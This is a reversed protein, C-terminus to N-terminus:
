RRKKMILVELSTQEIEIRKDCLIEGEYIIEISIENIGQKLSVPTKYLYTFTNYINIGSTLISMSNNVDIPKSNLRIRINARSLDYSSLTKFQLEINENETSYSNIDPNIEPSVVIIKTDFSANDQSSKGIIEESENRNYGDESKYSEYLKKENTCTKHISLFASNFNEINEENPAAFEIYPVEVSKNKNSGVYVDVKAFSEMNMDVKYLNGSEPDSDSFEIESIDFNYVIIRKEPSDISKYFEDIVISCKCPNMDDFEISKNKLIYPETHTSHGDFFKKVINISKLLNEESDEHIIREVRDRKNQSFASLSLLLSILLYLYKM